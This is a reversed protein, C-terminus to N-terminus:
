CCGLKLRITEFIGTEGRWNLEPDTWDPDEKNKDQVFEWFNLMLHRNNSDYRSIGDSDEKFFKTDKTISVLFHTNRLHTAFKNAFHKSVTSRRIFVLPQSGDCLKLLRHYRRKYKNIFEAAETSTFTEKLDHISILNDIKKMLIRSKGNSHVGEKAICESHLITDIDKCGFLVLISKESSTLYDFFQTYQTDPSIYRDIQYKVSCAPGLSIFM